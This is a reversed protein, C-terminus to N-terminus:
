QCLEERLIEAFDKGALKAIHKLESLYTQTATKSVPPTYAASLAQIRITLEPQTDSQFSRPLPMLSLLSPGSSYEVIAQGPHDSSYDDLKITREILGHKNLFDIIDKDAETNTFGSVLVSNPIKVGHTKIVEEM